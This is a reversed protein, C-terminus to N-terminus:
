SWVWWAALGGELVAVLAVGALMGRTFYRKMLLPAIQKGAAEAGLRFDAQRQTTLNKAERGPRRRKSM